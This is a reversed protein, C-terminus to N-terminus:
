VCNIGQNVLSSKIHVAVSFDRFIKVPHACAVAPQRYYESETFDTGNFLAHREDVAFAETRDAPILASQRLRIFFEPDIKDMDAAFLSQLYDLRQRRRDYRRRQGRKLRTAAATEASPFLRAGLTRTGHRSYLEGNEDTVAWGVSGTGLDLGITYNSANKINM